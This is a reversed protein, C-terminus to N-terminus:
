LLATMRPAPMNLRISVVVTVMLGDNRARLRIRSVRCDMAVASTPNLGTLFMTSPM